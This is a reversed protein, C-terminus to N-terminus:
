IHHMLACYLCTSKSATNKTENQTISIIGKCKATLCKHSIIFIKAIGSNQQM